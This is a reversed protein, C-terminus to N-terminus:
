GRRAPARASKRTLAEHDEKILDPTGCVVWGSVRAPDRVPAARHGGRRAAGDGGDAGLDRGAPAPPGALGVQGAAVGHTGVAYPDEELPVLETAQVAPIGEPGELDGLEYGVPKVGACRARFAEGGGRNWGLVTVCTHCLGRKARGEHEKGCKPCTVTRPPLLAAAVRKAPDQHQKLAEVVEEFRANLRARHAQAERDLEARTLM